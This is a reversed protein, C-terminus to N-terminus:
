SILANITDDQQLVYHGIFLKCNEYSLIETSL